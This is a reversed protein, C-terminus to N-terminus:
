PRLKSATQQVAPRRHLQEGKGEETQVALKSRPSTMPEEEEEEEEEEEVV